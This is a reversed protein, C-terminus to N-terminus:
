IAIIRPLALGRSFFHSANELTESLFQDKLTTSLPRLVFRGRPKIREEEVEGGGEYEAEERLGGCQRPRSAGGISRERGSYVGNLVVFVFQGGRARETLSRYHSKKSYNKEFSNTYFNM